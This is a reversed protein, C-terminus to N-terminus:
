KKPQGYQDREKSHKGHKADPALTTVPPYFRLADLLKRKRDSKSTGKSKLLADLAAKTGTDARAIRMGTNGTPALDATIGNIRDALPRVSADVKNDTYSNAEALVEAKTFSLPTTVAPAPAPAPPTYQAVFSRFEDPHSDALKKLEAMTLVFEGGKGSAENAKKLEAALERVKGELLSIQSQTRGNADTMAKIATNVAPPVQAPTAAIRAALKSIQDQTYARTYTTSIDTLAAKDPPLFVLPRGADRGNVLMRPMSFPVARDVTIDFSSAGTIAVRIGKVPNGTLVDTFSVSSITGPLGTCVVHETQGGTAFFSMGYKSDGCEAAFVRGTLLLALVAIAVHSIKKTADGPGPEAPPAPPVETPPTPISETPPTAPPEIAPVDTPPVQNTEAPPVTPQEGAPPVVKPEPSKLDYPQGPTKPYAVKPFGKPAMLIARGFVVKTSDTLSTAIVKVVTEKGLFEAPATYLGQDSISGVNPELSWRSESGDLEVGKVKVVYKKCAGPELKWSAPQVFASVETKPTPPIDTIKPEAPPTPQREVVPPLPLDPRQNLHIVEEKKRGRLRPLILFYSVAALVLVAVVVLFWTSSYFAGDTEPVPQGTQTGTKDAPAYTQEPDYRSTPAQAFLSNVTAILALSIVLGALFRSVHKNFLSM